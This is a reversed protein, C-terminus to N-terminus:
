HREQHSGKFLFPLSVVPAQALQNEMYVFLDNFLCTLPKVQMFNIALHEFPIVSVDRNVRLDIYISSISCVLM